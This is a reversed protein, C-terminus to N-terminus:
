LGSLPMRASGGTTKESRVLWPPPKARETVRMALPPPEPWGTTCHLSVEPSMTPMTARPEPMGGPVVTVSILSFTLKVSLLGSM